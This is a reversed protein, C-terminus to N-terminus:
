SVARPSAIRPRLGARVAPQGRDSGLGQLASKGQVSLEPRRPIPDAAGGRTRGLRRIGVGISRSGHPEDHDALPGRLAYRPECHARQVGSISNKAFTLGVNLGSWLGRFLYSLSGFGELIPGSM